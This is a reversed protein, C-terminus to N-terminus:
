AIFPLWKAAKVAKRQVILPGQAEGEDISM